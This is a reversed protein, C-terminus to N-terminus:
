QPVCHSRPTRRPDAQKMPGTRVASEGAHTSRCQVPSAMALIGVVQSASLDNSDMPTDQPKDRAQTPRALASHNGPEFTGQNLSGTSECALRRM